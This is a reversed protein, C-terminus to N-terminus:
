LEYEKLDNLAKMMGITDGIAMTNEANKISHKMFGSAFFGANNTLSDYEKIMERVRDMESHLGEILNM